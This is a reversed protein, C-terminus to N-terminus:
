GNRRFITMLGFCTATVLYFIWVLTANSPFGSSSRISQMNATVTKHGFEPESIILTLDLPPLEKLRSDHRFLAVRPFCIEACGIADGRRWTFYWEVPLTTTVGCYGWMARGYNKRSHKILCFYPFGQVMWETFSHTYSPGGRMVFAVLIFLAMQPCSIRINIPESWRNHFNM